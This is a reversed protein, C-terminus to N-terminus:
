EIIKCIQNFVEDMDKEGDIKHYSKRNKYYDIIPYTKNMYEDYRLSAIETTDDARKIIKGGCDCQNSTCKSILLSKGCSDCIGRDLIRKKVTDKSVVIEIIYDISIKKDLEQAQYVTRPFGDLLFNGSSKELYKDVLKITLEDPVMFGKDIYSKIENSLKDNQNALKRFMDGTSLYNLHFRDTIKKAQTGKGCAPPGILVINM